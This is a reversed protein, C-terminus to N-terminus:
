GWRLRMGTHNTRESLHNRSVAELLANLRQFLQVLRGLKSRELEVLFEEFDKLAQFPPATKTPVSSVSRPLTFQHALLIVSKKKHAKRNVEQTKKKEKNGGEYKIQVFDICRESAHAGGRGRGEGEM